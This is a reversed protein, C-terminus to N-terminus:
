GKKRRYKSSIDGGPGSYTLDLKLGAPFASTWHECKGKGYRDIFGHGGHYEMTAKVVCEYDTSNEYHFIDNGLLIGIHRPKNISRVRTGTRDLVFGSVKRSEGTKDNIKDFSRKAVYILRPRNAFRNPTKPDFPHWDGARVAFDGVSRTGCHRRPYELLHSVWHACHYAADSVKAGTPCYSAINRGLHNFLDIHREGMWETVRLINYTMMNVVGTETLGNRRQFECVAAHTEPGFDGDVGIKRYNTLVIRLRQQLARVDAGKDGKKLGEVEGLESNVWPM